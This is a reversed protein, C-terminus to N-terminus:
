MLFYATCVIQNDSDTERFTQLGQKWINMWESNKNSQATTYGSCLDSFLIKSSNPQTKM